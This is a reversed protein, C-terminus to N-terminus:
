HLSFDDPYFSNGECVFYCLSPIVYPIEVFKRLNSADGRTCSFKDRKFFM